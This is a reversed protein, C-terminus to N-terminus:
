EVLLTEKRNRNIWWTITWYMATFTGLFVLISIIPHSHPIFQSINSALICLVFNMRLSVYKKPKMILDEDLGSMAKLLDKESM